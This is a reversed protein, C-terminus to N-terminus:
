LGAAKIFLQNVQADTLGLAPILSVVLGYNRNVEQGFAWDIQAQEKQPSPLSEIIANIAPLHGADLLARRAQRMSVVAPIAPPPEIYPDPINGEALWEQIDDAAVQKSEYTGDARTRAVTEHSQDTFKWM